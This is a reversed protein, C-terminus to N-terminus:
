EERRPLRGRYAAQRCRNSCYKRARGQHPQSVRGACGPCRPLENYREHAHHLDAIYAEIFYNAWERQQEDTLYDLSGIGDTELFDRFMANRIPDSLQRLVMMEIQRVRERTVGYVRGIEDLTKPEGDTLGFRMSIVGAERESFTDLAAHIQAIAARREVSDAVPDRFSDRRGKGM